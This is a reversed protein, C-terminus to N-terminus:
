VLMLVLMGSAIAVVLSTLTGILYYDSFDQNKLEPFRAIAKAAVVLGLAAWQGNLVLFYVLLRELFGVTQGMSLVRSSGPGKVDLPYRSAHFAMGRVRSLVTSPSRRGTAAARSRPRCPAGAFQGLMKVVIASGGRINFVAGAGVVAARTWFPLWAGLTPILTQIPYESLVLTSWLVIIFVVHAAQDAFFVTLERGTDGFRRARLADQATHVISILLVAAAVRVSLLPLVLVLHTVLTVFGHEVLVATEHRKREAVRATQACFDAFIHGAVLLVLLTAANSPLFSLPLQAM